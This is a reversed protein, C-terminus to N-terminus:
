VNVYRAIPNGTLRAITAELTDFDIPKIIYDDAGLDRALRENQRGVMATVLIFPVPESPPSLGKLTKLIEYGSMTPLGIDCLVLDPSRELIAALGERGDHSVTVEFGRKSLELVVLDAATRDDEIYLVKKRVGPM